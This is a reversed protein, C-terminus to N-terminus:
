ALTYRIQFCGSSVVLFRAGRDRPVVIRMVEELFDPLNGNKVGILDEMSYLGPNIALHM